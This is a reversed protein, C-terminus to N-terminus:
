LRLERLLSRARAEDVNAAASEHCQVELLMALAAAASGDAGGRASVQAVRDTMADAVSEAIRECLADFGKEALDDQEAEARRYGQLVLAAAGASFALDHLQERLAEASPSGEYAESSVDSVDSDLDRDSREEAAIVDAAAEDSGDIQKRQRARDLCRQTAGQRQKAPSSVPSEPPTAASKARPDHIALHLPMTPVILDPKMAEHLAKGRAVGLDSHLADLAAEIEREQEATRKPASAAAPSVQDIPPLPGLSSM